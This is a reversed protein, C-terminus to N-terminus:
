GVEGLHHIFKDYVRQWDLEASGDLGSRHYGHWEETNNTLQLVADAIQGAGPEVVVGARYQQVVGVTGNDAHNTTITPTGSAMSEAVTRPFGERVSPLIHLRHSAFLNLKEEDSVRGLIRIFDLHGYKSKLEDLLPGGGAVTLHERFGHERALITASIAEEPRKHHSLRGFFLLGSKNASVSYQGTFIGSPISEIDRIRYRKSLLRKLGESVCIHKRTSRSILTNATAWAVGSRHECWDVVAVTNRPVRSILQPLLPWINFLVANYHHKRLHRKVELAFSWMIKPDRRLRADPRRYTSSRILRHVTMGDIQQKADSERSGITVVDVAWGNKVFLGGLELYRVEQGGISPFFLETVILLRKM